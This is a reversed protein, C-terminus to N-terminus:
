QSAALGVSDVVKAWRTVEREVFDNLEAVSKGSDPVIGLKKIKTRVEGETGIQRIDQNIKEV